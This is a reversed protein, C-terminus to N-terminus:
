EAKLVIFSHPKLQLPFNRLTRAPNKRFAPLTRDVSPCVEGTELNTMRTFNLSSTLNVKLTTDAFSEM